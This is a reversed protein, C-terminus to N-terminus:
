AIFARVASALTLLNFPKTIVGIAGLGTLPDQEVAETRSATLLVVPVNELGPVAQLAEMTTPGDKHPMMVDLLILEPIWSNAVEVAEAGSACSRVDWEPEIELSMMAEDRIDDDNEVLLIRIMPSRTRKERRVRIAREFKM